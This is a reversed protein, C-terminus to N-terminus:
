RDAEADLIASIAAGKKDPDVEALAARIREVTARREANRIVTGEERIVQPLINPPCEKVYEALARVREAAENTM